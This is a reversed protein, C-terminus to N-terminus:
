EEPLILEKHVRVFKAWLNSRSIAANLKICDKILMVAFEPEIALSYELTIDKRKQPQKHYKSALYVNIGHLVDPPLDDLGDFQKQEIKELITNIRGVSNRYAFFETAAGEGVTGTALEFLIEDSFNSKLINSLFHWSRPTPFPEDGKLREPLQVFLDPKFVLFAIIDDSINNQIAWIKWEDFDPTFDIKIFRNLLPAPLRQVGAKDQFRNSAAVIKWKEPFRYEGLRRDLILEYAANLVAPPALLIEDLFLIGKEGDREAQPLVSPAIWRAEERGDKKSVYLFGRLDTPDCQALRFDVEKVQKEECVQQVVSSKGVGPPGSLFLATEVFTNDLFKSIVEKVQSPKM